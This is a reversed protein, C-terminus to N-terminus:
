KPYATATDACAASTGPKVTIKLNPLNISGNVQADWLVGKVSFLTGGTADIGFAGKGYNTTSAELPNADFNGGTKTTTIDTAALGFQNVGQLVAGNGTQGAQGTTRLSTLDLVAKNATIENTALNDDGATITITYTLGAVSDTKSLCFGNLSVAAFGARLVSATTGNKKTMPVVGLGVDQGIISSTAFSASGNQVVISSAIVSTRVLGVLVAITVFGFGFLAGTRRWRTGYRPAAEVGLASM